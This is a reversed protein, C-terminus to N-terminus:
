ATAGREIRELVRRKFEIRVMTGTTPGDGVEAKVDQNVADLLGQAEEANEAVWEDVQKQSDKDKRVEEDTRKLEKRGREAAGNRHAQYHQQEDHNSMAPEPRGGEPLEFPNVQEGIVFRLSSRPRPYHERDLYWKRLALKLLRPREGWPIREGKADHWATYDEGDVISELEARVREPTIGKPPENAATEVLQQMKVIAQQQQQAAVEDTSEDDAGVATGDKDETSDKSSGEVKHGPHAGPTGETHGPHAGLTDDATDDPTGEATGRVGQKGRLELSAGIGQPEDPDNDDTTNSRQYADFNPLRYITGHQTTRVQVIREMEQLLELFIRTKKQGWKWRDAAFRISLLVEGRKLDVLQGAVVKRHRGYATLQMIDEWAEWRNFVRDENWFPDSEYAKRSIKLHGYADGM